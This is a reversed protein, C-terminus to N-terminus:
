DETPTTDTMRALGTRTRNDSKGPLRDPKAQKTNEDTMMWSLSYGRKGQEGSSHTIEMEGHKFIVTLIGEEMETEPILQLSLGNESHVYSKLKTKM